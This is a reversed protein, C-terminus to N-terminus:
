SVRLTFWTSRLGLRSRFDDGSVTVRGGSGRLTVTGVRGGWDGHGDRGSVRISRLNGIAPWERELNRDALTVKWSHYPNGSWGDYKDPKAPLYSFSGASTWGGSSASFQTFAPKGSKTLIQHATADVATNSTPYEASYGGYVQCQTTDCIQYHGALPERREYAAYTRAATAQARLAQQHWASAIVERPVVGKLYADLPLINVTDNNVSRLVGRYQVSGSPLYLRIPKGGATFEADGGVVRWRHWGSTKFEIESRGGSLPTSRWRKAGRKAKTLNWSQGSRRARVTLGARPGVVVDSTRDASILVKVDGAARGWRTGPYYYNVIQRYSKGRRAAGEADYQSLGHGHGFGHGRITITAASVKSDDSGPEATVLTGTLALLGATLGTTLLTPLAPM